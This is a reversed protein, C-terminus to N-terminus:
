IDVPTGIQTPSCMRTIIIIWYLGTSFQPTADNFSGQLFVPFHGDHKTSVFVQM